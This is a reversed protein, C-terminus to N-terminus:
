DTNYGWLLIGQMISYCTQGNPSWNELGPFFYVSQTSESSPEPPVYFSSYLQNFQNLGGPQPISNAGVEEYWGGTGGGDSETCHAFDFHDISAGDKSVNGENDVTAGMPAEFSCKPDRTHGHHAWSPSTVSVLAMGALLGVIGHELQIRKM